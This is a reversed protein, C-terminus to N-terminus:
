RRFGRGGWGGGGGRSGWGRASESRSAWGGGSGFRDGSGSSGGSHNGWGSFASSSSGTSRQGWGRADDDAKVNQGWNGSGGPKSVNNWSGNSYKQVGSGTNRYETGDHSAYTNGNATKGVVNNGYVTAKAGNSAQISRPGSYGYSGPRGYYGGHYSNGYGGYYGGHWANNGYFNNQNYVVTGGHWNCNWSNWGWGCCGGGGGNMLAGVAIGAGFSLLGTAVLAGTSYGPTVVPTGYVAAPNYQPVYVVQTPPAQIVITSPSQQVVTMQPSTKLNGAEKAKARLTQIASMVESAQNHYAEGLSSTWSLNTAMNDLVSPFQTLAKVSPDWTQKDAAQMLANAALNKNQQLWYNAVAVQDPFTAAGLIQAVLADPYLAIPAVLGQLEEASLPVGQGSYTPTSSPTPSEQAFVYTTGPASPLIGSLVVALIQKILPHTM